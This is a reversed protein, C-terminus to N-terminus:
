HALHLPEDPRLAEPRQVLAADSAQWIVVDDYVLQAM